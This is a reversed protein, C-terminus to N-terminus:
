NYNYQLQITINNHIGISLSQKSSLGFASKSTKISSYANLTILNLAWNLSIESIGWIAKNNKVKLTRHLSIKSNEIGNAVAADHEANKVTYDPNILTINNRKVRVYYDKLWLEKIMDAGKEAIMVVPAHINGNTITPMISADIVRLGKIGYVRLQPDVVAMPDNPPGMKATCSMHYITMTYQRVACNWYEDTFLPLHKCNPLPKSWFRAGFRQMTYTQSLAIATKVGERLVNVDDPHTLYNHYLLPYRLPNKSVLRILGRSKPRLMMPFIGYVDKNNIESFVENYFEDSLGHARKVQTGGDSSTSASTMMFNMDPWDDSSNAYKTNIFAVAELGISSTLPGNETIAYRLATNINIMRNMVISIPYDIQFVLGGVAIHDQLNRGVGPSEKVMPIGVRQLEERPGVGSLMLLHPSGIAGASLIVERKAFVRHFKGDRIYEAGIARKTKPDIIVKTVHTFLAIHLNKRNRAPRLFCKATSARAGRRMNFQYFAFGTQQGGNVDVHDYGMEVGAQVFAPGLPTNYPSDQVTWLGGTGHYKKNKALYPNRNDESKIFYPLVDDYGWGYNGFSEWQDFDRRNGRIYLMTNLVSSGGIVKGRTWCCRQDVMAQCATKQPQTRYKWDMKSKHLYLSLLPVDSIETEHGGAEMLLIKWNPIESLRSALVSGASGGGIIVFDYERHIMKINFPRNEPDFLDYNYYAIAAILIPLITLKGIGILATAAKIATTVAIGLKTTVTTISAAAIGASAGSSAKFIAGGIHPVLGSLFHLVM